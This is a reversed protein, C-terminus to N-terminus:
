QHQGQGTVFDNDSTRSSRLYCQYQEHRMALSYPLNIFNGICVYYHVTAMLSFDCDSHDSKIQVGWGGGGGGGGAM